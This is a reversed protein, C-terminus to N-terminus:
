RVLLAVVSRPLDFLKLVAAAEAFVGPPAGDIHL